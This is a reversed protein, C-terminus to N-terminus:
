RHDPGRRSRDSTQSMDVGPIPASDFYDETVSPANSQPGVAPASETAPISAAQVDPEDTAYVASAAEPAASESTDGEVAGGVVFHPDARTDAAPLLRGVPVVPLAGTVSCALRWHHMAREPHRLADHLNGLLAHVRMDSRLKMSRELYHEGQGWLQAGLCLQGLSALLAPHEPHSKLWLEAHGLRLVAQEPACQAYARLLPEDMGRNLAAEITRAEDGYRGQRNLAQAAALAIGPDLREDGNLDGWISKFEAENSVRLRAVTADRIFRQAQAKDIASRRLLLRTLEYVRAHNGLQRHARLLLRTAHFYRSSADQLPELLALAEEARNQDLYMEATVTDVAQRLRTDQGAGEQALKLVQDRRPYEGLLHLARASSLGALVKRSASRTKSLLSSLEKEAQIYRGELVNIWGSELLDLDRQQARRGRWARFRGRTGGLWGISRVIWYMLVFGFILLVVALTLSLEVRWPQAVILVNGSHERLVLAALVAVVFVFLTWFWTRMM